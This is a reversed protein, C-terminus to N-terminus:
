LSCYNKIGAWPARANGETLTLQVKDRYIERNVKSQMDKRDQLNGMAFLKKMENLVEKLGKSM